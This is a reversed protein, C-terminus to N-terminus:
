SQPPIDTKSKWKNYLNTLSENPDQSLQRLERLLANLDISLLFAANQASQYLLVPDESGSEVLESAKKIRWDKERSEPFRVILTSDVGFWKGEPLEFPDCNIWKADSPIDGRSVVNGDADMAAFAICVKYAPHVCYSKVIM